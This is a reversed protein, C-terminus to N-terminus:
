VKLFVAVTLIGPRLKKDERELSNLLHNHQALSQAFTLTWLGVVLKPRPTTKLTYLSSLM